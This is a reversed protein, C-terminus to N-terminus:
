CSISAVRGVALLPRAPAIGMVGFLLRLSCHSGLTRAPPIEWAFRVQDIVPIEPVRCPPETSRCRNLAATETRFIVEM